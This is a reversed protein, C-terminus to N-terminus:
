FSRPSVRRFDVGDGAYSSLVVAATDAHLSGDERLLGIGVLMDFSEPSVRYNANSALQHLHYVALMGAMGKSELADLSLTTTMVVANHVEAGNRLMM